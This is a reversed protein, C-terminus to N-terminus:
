VQQPIQCSKINSEDVAVIKLEREYIKEKSYYPLKKSKTAETQDKAIKKSKIEKSEAKEKKINIIPVKYQSFVPDKKNILRAYTM